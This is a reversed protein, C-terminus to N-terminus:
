FASGTAEFAGKIWETQQSQILLADFRYAHQQYRPHSAIFSLATQSIKKQKSPPISYAAGGFNASQRYKVEIFCLTDSQLMILDIEGFRSHYNQAVLELGQQQLWHLAQQEYFLGKNRHGPM